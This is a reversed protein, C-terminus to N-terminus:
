ILGCASFIIGLLSVCTIFCVLVLCLIFDRQKAKEKNFQLDCIFNSHNIIEDNLRIELEKNIQLLANYKEKYILYKEKYTLKNNKM